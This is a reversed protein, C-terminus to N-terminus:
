SESYDRAPGPRQERVRLTTESKLQYSILQREPTAFFANVDPGHVVFLMGLRHEKNMQGAPPDDKLAVQRIVNRRQPVKHTEDISLSQFDISHETYM